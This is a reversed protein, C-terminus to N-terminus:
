SSLIIRGLLSQEMLEGYLRCQGSCGKSGTEGYRNVGLGTM